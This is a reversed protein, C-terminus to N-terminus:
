KAHAVIRGLGKLSMHVGVATEVKTPTGKRLKIDRDLVRVEIDVNPVFITIGTFPSLQTDYTFESESKVEKVLLGSKGHLSGPIRTLRRVDITVQQDLVVGKSTIYSVVERRENSGLRGCEGKCEVHVHFGRNGSFYARGPMGLDDKLVDILRFTHNLAVKLCVENIELFEVAQGHHSCVGEVPVGCIPCFNFKRM